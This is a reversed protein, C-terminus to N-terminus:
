SEMWAEAELVLRAHHKHLLRVVTGALRRVAAGRPQAGVLSAMRESGDELEQIAEALAYWWRSEDLSLNQSSGMRLMCTGQTTLANRLVYSVADLEALLGHLKERQALSISAESVQEERLRVRHMTQLCAVIVSQFVVGTRKETELTEAVRVAVPFASVDEAVHTKMSGTRDSESRRLPKLFSLLRDSASIGNMLSVPVNCLEYPAWRSLV